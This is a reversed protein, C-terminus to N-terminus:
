RSEIPQPVRTASGIADLRLRARDVVPAQAPTMEGQMVRVCDAIAERTPIWGEIAGSAVSHLVIRRQAPSLGELESEWQTM